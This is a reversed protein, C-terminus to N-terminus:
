KAQSRADALKDAFDALGKTTTNVYSGSGAGVASHLTTRGEVRREPDFPPLAGRVIVDAEFHFTFTWSGTNWSWFRLIEASIPIAEGAGPDGPALVRLGALRFGNALAERTLDMVTRGEPLLVDIRPKKSADRLHGFARATIAPDESGGAVLQQPAPDLPVSASEVFKRSDKVEVILVAPGQALNERQAIAVDVVERRPATSCASAVWALALLMLTVSRRTRAQDRIM